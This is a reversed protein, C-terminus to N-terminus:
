EVNRLSYLKMSNLEIATLNGLGNINNFVCGTDINIAKNETILNLQDVTKELAQPTHGHIIYRDQLVEHNIKLNREWLMSYRDEFINSINFNLGAHVMIYKHNLVKYYLLTKFFYKYPEKLEEFTSINLSQLTLDGGCKLVWHEYLDDDYNSEIFMEEHNGMLCTIDYNKADLNLIIDLVGKSDHGRDIYDGLFIVKDTKKL